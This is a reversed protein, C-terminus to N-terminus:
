GLLRNVRERVSRLDQNGTFRDVEVGNKFLVCTPVGQIGFHVTAEPSEDIDVKFVRLKGTFEAAVADITPALAKCPQCWTASFDVLAPVDSSQLTREFDADTLEQVKSM